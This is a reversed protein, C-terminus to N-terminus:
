QVVNRNIITDGYYVSVAPTNARSFLESEDDTLIFVVTALCCRCM